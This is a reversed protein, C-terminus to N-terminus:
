RPLIKEKLLDFDVPKTLFGSAGLSTAKNINDQDGYASVMVVNLHPYKEKTFKLLDFGTLGPMNIDTLVLVVDMPALKALFSMAENASFAFILELLGAKIEKRFRQRYLQEVDMEDDVILVKM